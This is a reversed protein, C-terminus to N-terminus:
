TNKEKEPDVMDFSASWANDVIKEGKYWASVWPSDCCGCSGINMEIGHQRLIAMLKPLHLEHQIRQNELEKEFDNM